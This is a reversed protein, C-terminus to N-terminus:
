AEEVVEPLVDPATGLIASERLDVRMIPSSAPQENAPARVVAQDMMDNIAQNRAKLLDQSSCM